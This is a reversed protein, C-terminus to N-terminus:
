GVLALNCQPPPEHGRQQVAVPNGGGGRTNWERPEGKSGNDKPAAFACRLCRRGCVQTRLKEPQKKAASDAAWHGLSKVGGCCQEIWGVRRPNRSVASFMPVDIGWAERREERNSPINEQCEEGGEVAIQRM